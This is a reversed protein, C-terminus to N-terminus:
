TCVCIAIERRLILKLLLSWVKITAADWQDTPPQNTLAGAMALTQPDFSSSADGLFNGCLAAAIAVQSRLIPNKVEGLASDGVPCSDHILEAACKWDKRREALNLKHELTRPTLSLVHVKTHVVDYGDDDRECSSSYWDMNLWRRPPFGSFLSPSVSSIRRWNDAQFASCHDGSFGCRDVYDDGPNCQWLDFTHLEIGQAMPFCRSVIRGPDLFAIERRPDIVGVMRQVCARMAQVTTPSQKRAIETGLLKLQKILVFANVPEIGIKMDFAPSPTLDAASSSKLDTTSSSTFDIAPSSNFDTACLRKSIHRTKGANESKRKRRQPVGIGPADKWKCRFDIWRKWIGDQVEGLVGPAFVSALM